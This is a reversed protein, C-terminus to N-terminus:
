DQPTPPDAESITSGYMCKASGDVHKQVMDDINTPTWLGRSVCWGICNTYGRGGVDAPVEAHAVQAVGMGLLMAMALGLLIKKVTKEGEV